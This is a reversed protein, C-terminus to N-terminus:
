ASQIFEMSDNFQILLYFLGFLFIKFFKLDSLNFGIQVRLGTAMLFGFLIHAFQFAAHLFQLELDVFILLIVITLSFQNFFQLVLDLGVFTLNFFRYM